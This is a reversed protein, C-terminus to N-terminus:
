GAIEIARDCILRVLQDNDPERVAYPFGDVPNRGLADRKIETAPRWVVRIVKGPELRCEAPDIDPMTLLWNHDIVNHQWGHGSPMSTRTTGLFEANPSDFFEMGILRGIEEDFEMILTLASLTINDPRATLEQWAPMHGAAGLIDWSNPMVTCDPGRLQCLLNGYGDTVAGHAGLHLDGHTHVLSKPKVLGTPNGDSDVVEIM